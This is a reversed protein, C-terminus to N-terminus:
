VITTPRATPRFLAKSPRMAAIAYGATHTRRPDEPVWTLDESLNAIELVGRVDTSAGGRDGDVWISGPPGSLGHGDAIEGDPAGVEPLQL